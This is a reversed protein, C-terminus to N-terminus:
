VITSGSDKQGPSAWSTTPPIAGGLGGGGARLASFAGTGEPLRGTEGQDHSRACRELSRKAM